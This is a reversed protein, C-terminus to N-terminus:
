EILGSELMRPLDSPFINIHLYYKQLKQSCMAQLNETQRFGSFAREGQILTKGLSFRREEPFSPERKHYTLRSKQQYIIFMDGNKDIEKHKIVYCARFATHSNYNCQSGLHRGTTSSTPFITFYFLEMFSFYDISVLTPCLFLRFGM